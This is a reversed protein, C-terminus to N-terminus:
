AQVMSEPAHVFRAGETERQLVNVDDLNAVPNRGFGWHKADRRRNGQGQGVTPGAAGGEDSEAIRVEDGVETAGAGRPEGVAVFPQSKAAAARLDCRSM